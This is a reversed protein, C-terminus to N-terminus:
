PGFEVNAHWSKMVSKQHCCLLIEDIHMAIQQRDLALNKFNLHIIKKQQLSGGM